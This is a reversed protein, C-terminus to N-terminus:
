HPVGWERIAAEIKDCLAIADAVSRPTDELWPEGNELFAEGSPQNPRIRRLAM